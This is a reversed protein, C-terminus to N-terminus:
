DAFVADDSSLLAQTEALSSLGTVEIFENLRSDVPLKCFRRIPKSDHLVEVCLPNPSASDLLSDAQDNMPLRYARLRYDGPETFDHILAFREVYDDNNEPYFNTHVEHKGPTVRAYYNVLGKLKTSVLPVLSPTKAAEKPPNLADPQTVRIGKDPLHSDSDIMAKKDIQTIECHYTGECAVSVEGAFTQIKDVSPTPSEPTAITKYGTLVQCGTLTLTMVAAASVLLTTKPALAIWAMYKNM